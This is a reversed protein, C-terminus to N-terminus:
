SDDYFRGGDGNKEGVKGKTSYIFFRLCTTTLAPIKRQDKGALTYTGGYEIPFTGSVVTGSQSLVSYGNITAESIPSLTPDSKTVSWHLARDAEVYTLGPSPTDEDVQTMQKVVQSWTGDSATAKVVYFGNAKADVTDNNSGAAQLDTIDM